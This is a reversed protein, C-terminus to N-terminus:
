LASIIGAARRQRTTRLAAVLSTSETTAATLSDRLQREHARASALRGSLRVCTARLTDAATRHEELQRATKIRSGILLQQDRLSLDDALDYNFDHLAQQEAAIKTTLRVLEQEVEQVKRELEDNAATAASLEATLRQVDAHLDDHLVRLADEQVKMREIASATHDRLRDTDDRLQQGNEYWDAFRIPSMGGAGPYERPDLRHNFVGAQMRTYAAQLRANYYIRVSEPQFLKLCLLGLFMFILFAKITLQTARFSPSKELEAVVKARTDPGHRVIDVGYRNALFEPTGVAADFTRLETSRASETQAIAAELMNIDREIAESTPGKGYRRSSGTGAIEKELDRQRSALSARAAALKAAFGRELEARKAAITQENAREINADIDRAFFLQTLFPATVTFTLVVLIVRAAVAVHDRHIRLRVRRWLSDGSANEIEDHQRRTRDHMIFMADVSGVLMLVVLAAIGAAIWAPVGASTTYAFYSWAIADCFAISAINLAALLMWTSAVGDLLNNGYPKLTLLQRLTELM